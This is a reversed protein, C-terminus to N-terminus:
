AVIAWRLLRSRDAPKHFFAEPEARAAEGGLVLDPSGTYVAVRVPMRVARVRELLENGAGDPLDLDLILHSPKAGLGVLGEALNGAEVVVVGAHRLIAAISRRALVDDEVILVLPRM